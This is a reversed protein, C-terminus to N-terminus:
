GVQIRIAAPVNGPPVSLFGRSTAPSAPLWHIDSIWRSILRTMILNRGLTTSGAYPGGLMFFVILTIRLNFFRQPPIASNVKTDM